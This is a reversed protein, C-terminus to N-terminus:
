IFCSLRCLRRVGTGQVDYKPNFVYLFHRRWDFILDFTITTNYFM